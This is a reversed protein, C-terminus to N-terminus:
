FIEMNNLKNQHRRLVEEARDYRKAHVRWVEAWKEDRAALHRREAGLDPRGLQSSLLPMKADAEPRTAM